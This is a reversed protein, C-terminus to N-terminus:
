GTSQDSCDLAKYSDVTAQLNAVSRDLDSRSIGDIGDPHEQVFERTQALRRKYDAKIGCLVRHNEVASENAVKAAQKATDATTQAQVAVARIDDRQSRSDLFGLVIAALVVSFGIALLIRIERKLRNFQERTIPTTPTV